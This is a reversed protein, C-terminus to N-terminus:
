SCMGGWTTAVVVVAAGAVLVFALRRGGFNAPRRQNRLNWPLVAILIMSVAMVRIPNCISISHLHTFFWICSGVGFIGAAMVSVVVPVPVSVDPRFLLIRKM